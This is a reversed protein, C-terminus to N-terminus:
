HLGNHYELARQGAFCKREARSICFPLNGLLRIQLSSYAYIVKWSSPVVQTEQLHTSSFADLCPSTILLFDASIQAHYEQFKAVLRKWAKSFVTRGTQGLKQGISRDSRMGTENFARGYLKLSGKLLLKWPKEETKLLCARRFYTIM